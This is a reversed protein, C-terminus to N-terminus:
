IREKRYVSKNLRIKVKKSESDTYSYLVIYLMFQAYLIYVEYYKSTVNNPPM